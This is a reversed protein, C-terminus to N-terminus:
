PRKFQGPSRIAVEGGLVEARGVLERDLDGAVSPRKDPQHFRVVNGVDDYGVWGLVLAIASALTLVSLTSALVPM